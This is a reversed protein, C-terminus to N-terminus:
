KRGYSRNKGKTNPTVLHEEQEMAALYVKEGQLKVM